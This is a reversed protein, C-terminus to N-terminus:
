KVSEPEVAKFEKIDFSPLEALTQELSQRLDEASDAAKYSFAYQKLPHNDGICLGIAYIPIGYKTSNLAAEPISDAEGDTVVVLRYEGYGLQKKYQEVLKATAFRIGEALPTGGNADLKDIEGLFLNHNNPGLSIVERQGGGDFVYLGINVDKPIKKLLEKAAWQAGQIKRKFSQDGRCDGDPSDGMSGSGDFVFYFNRATSAQAGPIDEIPIIVKESQAQAINQKAEQQSVTTPQCASLIISLSLLFILRFVIRKM